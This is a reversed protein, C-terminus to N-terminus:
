GDALRFDFSRRGQLPATPPEFRWREMAAIAERDFIGEPESDLVRVDSVSGDVGITFALEVSGEIRRRMALPPYRPTASFRAEPLDLPLPRTVVPTTAPPAPAAAAPDPTAPPAVEAVSEAVRSDAASPAAGPVVAEGQGGAVAPANVSATAPAAAPAENSSAVAPAQAADVAVSARLRELAQRLRPLAPADPQAQQMLGLLRESDDADGAALTQEVHLVAYPFLDVLAHTALPDDPRLRRQEIYLEFANDGPPAFLRQERLARDAQEAPDRGSPQPLTEALPAGSNQQPADSAPRHSSWLLAGLILGGLLLGAVLTALTGRGQQRRRGPVKSGSSSMSIGQPLARRPVMGQAKAFSHGALM